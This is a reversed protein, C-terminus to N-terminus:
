VPIVPMVLDLRDQNPSSASVPLTLLAQESVSAAALWFDGALPLAVLAFLTALFCVASSSLFAVPLDTCTANAERTFM